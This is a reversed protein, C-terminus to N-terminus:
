GDGAQKRKRIIERRAVEVTDSFPMNPDGEVRLISASLGVVLEMPNDQYSQREAAPIGLSQARAELLPVVTGRLRAEDRRLRQMLARERTRALALGLGVGLILGGVAAVVTEWGDVHGPYM